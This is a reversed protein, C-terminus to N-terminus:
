GWIEDGYDQELVQGVMANAAVGEGAARGGASGAARAERAGKVALADAAVNGPHNAHGKLWRFETLVGCRNRENIRGVIPEVIDRNEVPRRASTM